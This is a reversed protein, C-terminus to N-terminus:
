YYRSTSMMNAGFIICASKAIRPGTKKEEAKQVDNNAKQPQAKLRDGYLQLSLVFKSQRKEIGGDGPFSLPNLSITADYDYIIIINYHQNSLFLFFSVMSILARLYFCM